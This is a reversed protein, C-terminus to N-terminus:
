RCQRRAIAAKSILECAIRKYWGDGDDGEGMEVPRSTGHFAIEEIADYLIKFRRELFEYSDEPKSQSM